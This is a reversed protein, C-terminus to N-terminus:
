SIKIDYGKMVRNDVNINNRLNREHYIQMMNDLSEEDLYLSDFNDSIYLSYFYIDLTFTTNNKSCYMLKNVLSIENFNIYFYLKFHKLSNNEETVGTLLVIGTKLNEKKTKLNKVTFCSVDLLLDKETYKDKLTIIM